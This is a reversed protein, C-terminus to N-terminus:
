EQPIEFRVLIRDKKRLKPSNDNNNLLAQEKKKVRIKPWNDFQISTENKFTDLMGKLIFDLAIQLDKEPLGCNESVQQIFETENIRKM